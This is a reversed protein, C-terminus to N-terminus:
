QHQYLAWNLIGSLEKTLKSAIDPDRKKGKFTQAFELLLVRRMLADSKDKFMPLENVAFTHKATPTFTIPQEYKVNVTIPDGGTLTKMTSSEILRSTDIEAALNVLKDRLMVLVFDNHMKHLPVACVNERGVLESLVHLAVSKGNGGGGVLIMFVQLSVDPTLCYGFWQRLMQTKEPEDAFVTDCFKEWMPCTAKPDFGYPLQIRSSHEPAHDRLEGTAIDLMGNTLNLLGSDAIFEEGDRLTDLRLLNTADKTRNTTSKSGLLDHAAKGVVDKDLTRWVGCSYYKYFEGGVSVLPDLEARLAQALAAPLFSRGDFFRGPGTQEIMEEETVGDPLDNTLLGNLEELVGTLKRDKCRASVVLDRIDYGRRTGDPWEIRALSEARSALAKWAKATGKRGADDNDYCLRVNM